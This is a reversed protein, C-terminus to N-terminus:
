SSPRGARRELREAAELIAKRIAVSKRARVTGPLVAELKAIAALTETDALFSTSTLPEREEGAAPRGTPLHGTTDPRPIRARSM